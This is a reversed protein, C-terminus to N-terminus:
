LDGGLVGNKKNKNAWDPRLRIADRLYVHQIKELSISTNWHLLVRICKSISGEVNMEQACLMPLDLWGMDRAARAPYVATLDQTCTFFGSALDEVKLSPNNELIAVLLEQTATLIEERTNSEVTIAGRIGRIEM